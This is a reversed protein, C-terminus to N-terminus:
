IRPEILILAFNIVLYSNQVICVLKSTGHAMDESVGSKSESYLREDGNIATLICYIMLLTTSDRKESLSRVIHSVPVSCVPWQVSCFGFNHM